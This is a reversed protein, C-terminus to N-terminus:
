PEIWVRAWFFYESNALNPHFGQVRPQYSWSVSYPAYSFLYAQELLHRHIARFAEAREPSHYEFGAQTEILRDLESDQHQLIDWQGQGHLVSFVFGGPSSSPPVPGIFIQYDKQQWVKESYQGPNLIRLTPNFGADRLEGVLNHADGLSDDGFDGVTLEVDIASGAVPTPIALGRISELDELPPYWSPEVVPIVGVGLFGMKEWISAEYIGLYDFLAKRRASDDFPPKSVNMALISGQGVRRSLLTPLSEVQRQLELLTEPPAEWSSTEVVDVVGGLIAAAQTQPDAIFKFSLRAPFPLGKEFYNPNAIFESGEGRQTSQWIWPRAGVVPGEKLEGSTEVAERAVIKSHGDALTLLFDVDPRQLTLKLTYDDVAESSGLAHLLPANPWGQTRQRDYSYVIDSATLRRGHVPALNQWRVGERLQFLFTVPDVM